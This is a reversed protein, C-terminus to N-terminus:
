WTSPRPLPSPNDLCHFDYHILTEEFVINYLTSLNPINKRTRVEDRDHLMVQTVKPLLQDMYRVLPRVAERSKLQEVADEISAARISPGAEPPAQLLKLVDAM